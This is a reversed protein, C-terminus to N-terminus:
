LFLETQCFYGTDVLVTGRPIQESAEAAIVLWSMVYHRRALITSQLKVMMPELPTM